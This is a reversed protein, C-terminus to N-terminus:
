HRDSVPAGGVRTISGRRESSATVSRMKASSPRQSVTASTKWSAFRPSRANASRRTRAAFAAPRDTIGDGGLHCPAEVQREVGHGHALDAMGPLGLVRESGGSGTAVPDEDARVVPEVLPEESSRDGPRLRARLFEVVHQVSSTIQRDSGSIKPATPKQYSSKAWTPSAWTSASSSGCPM